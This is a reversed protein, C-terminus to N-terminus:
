TIILNDDYKLKIKLFSDKKNKTEVNFLSDLIVHIIVILFITRTKINFIFLINDNFQETSLALKM